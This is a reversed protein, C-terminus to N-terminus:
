DVFIVRTGDDLVWVRENGVVADVTSESPVGLIMQDQDIMTGDAADEDISHVSLVQTMSPESMAQGDARANAQDDAMPARHHIVPSYGELSGLLEAVREPTYAEAIQARVEGAQEDLSRCEHRAKAMEHAAQLRSQRVSLLGIGSSGCVLILVILKIFM